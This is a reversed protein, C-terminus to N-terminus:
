WDLQVKSASEFRLALESEFWALLVLADLRTHCMHEVYMGNKRSAARM